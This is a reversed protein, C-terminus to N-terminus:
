NKMQLLLLRSWLLSPPDFRVSPNMLLSIMEASVADCCVCYYRNKFNRIIKNHKQAFTRLMCCIKAVVLVFVLKFM